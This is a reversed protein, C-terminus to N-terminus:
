NRLAGRPSVCFSFMSAAATVDTVKPSIPPVSVSARRIQSTMGFLEDKPFMRTLEYCGQAVEMGMQWVRLDQYSEIRTM